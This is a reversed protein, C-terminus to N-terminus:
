RLTNSSAKASISSSPNGSQIAYQSQGRGKGDVAKKGKVRTFVKKLAHAEDVCMFDFGLDEINVMTGSMGRGLISELRALLAERQKKRRRIFLM